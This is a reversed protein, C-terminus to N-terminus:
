YVDKLYRGQETIRELYNQAAEPTLNGQNQFIQLLTSEVDFSMPTKAGCVYIYAGGEIWQFLEESNELLRHQVYIKEEQDRSFAADLRHLVGTKLFDLLETQYLFDTAFNREGFFLWNRGSAGLADREFLFSRFPAVGTGPGIMIINSEPAPLKFSRNKHIYFEVPAEEELQNLFSSCLGTGTTGDGNPFTHLAVTLHLEGPHTAPSSSISYLRPVVPDLIELLASLDITAPPHIQLLDALGMRPGDIVLSTLEAYKRIVRDSLFAINVKTSLVERLSQTAGRFSVTKEGDSQLLSLVRDVLALPNKPVFGAADGPTYDIDSDCRIEIHHTEKSSPTDNLNINSLVEGLYNKKGTGSASSGAAQSTTSPLGELVKTVDAFWTNSEEEYSTDCKVVPLLRQAGRQTLFNDADIAAQCFQPYATDGLGLVAFRLPSLDLDAQQIFEFFNLAAQPPEGDGQTSVILFFYTEKSLDKLRYQDLGALKVQFGLAKAKKALSTALNKSNGTETGYALTFRSVKTRLTDQLGVAENGSPLAAKGDSFGLKASLYGHMWVLDERSATEIFNTFSGLRQNIDTM